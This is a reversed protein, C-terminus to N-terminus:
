RSVSATAIKGRRGGGSDPPTLAGPTAPALDPRPSYWLRAVQAALIV